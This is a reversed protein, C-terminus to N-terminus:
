DEDRVVEGVLQPILPRDGFREQDRAEHVPPHTSADLRGLADRIKSTYQNYVKLGIAKEYGMAYLEIAREEVEVVTNELAEKYMQAESESLRPPTPANRLSEAFEDYISGIRYLAAIAWQPDGFQVVDVYALQAQELLKTKRGLTKQVKAPTVDLKIGKFTQFILEGEHYRSEAAWRRVTEKERPRKRRDYLKLVTKFHDAAQRTRGLELATRGARTHAEFLDAETSNRHRQAYESFASYAEKYQGAKEYVVGIRFALDDSDDRQRHQRAYLSYHEIAREYQGLAQRLVGANFLADAAHKSKKFDKIVIEYADAARDFYAVAEYVQGATFAAKAALADRPYRSALSLYTTAAKEPNKAKEYMVGANMLANPALAHDGFEKPVRLYFGAAKEYEGAGAYKEGSKGISEVILRDLREQQDKSQFAKANKLKRAWEEINEYDEGQTLAKLIRDGAPGANPDGPYKTVILGFRKIAEDYDGYDYFLQGNRFIVRVIEPDAPFLTAYLDVTEAFKRDVPLLERKKGAGLNTPRAKEFADMAKLLADKQLTDKQKANRPASKGVALYEDGAAEHQGLKFYLIEARLFRVEVANPHDSYRSLYYAYTESADTYLGLNPKKSTKEIQQAEAHYNKATDRIIAETLALSKTLRGPYKKNTRAWQSDPGYGEVLLKIQEIANKRDLSEVYSSVISRQYDAADIHERDLEILFRYTDVSREYESQSAYSTAVRVLVDKSYREGGISALFDYVEKATIARDETFVIVLYDLAEDRLQARRRRTRASGSIEAEVALDLVEKFRRAATEVEGLKWDCWATKFLALDYTPWDPRALIHAFAGRAEEWGMGAFYHEGIMMWADGYLPSRPFREIVQRYYSLAEDQQNKETAAFGVLYLILDTRRFDPHNALIQKYLRAPEDLNLRPEKPQSKCSARDQRCAELQREYREMNAIFKRRAEEWLLEALKFLGEARIDGEPKSDLFTRLLGIAEARKADRLKEKKVLLDQLVKPPQPTEPTAPRKRIYLDSASSPDVEMESLQAHAPSLAALLLAAGLLAAGPRSCTRAGTRWGARWGIHHDVGTM